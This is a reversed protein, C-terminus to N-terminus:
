SKKKFKYYSFLLILWSVLFMSNTIKIPWIDMVLSYALWFSCSAISVFIQSPHYSGSSKNKWIEVIQVVLTTGVIFGLILFIVDKNPSLIMVPLALVSILGLFKEKKTIKKFRILNIVVVLSLIGLFGNITLALSNNTFGFVTVALASFGFFSYFSFSVSEGSKTRIIKQNQKVFAIAQLVTFVVTASFSLTLINMGFGEIEVFRMM